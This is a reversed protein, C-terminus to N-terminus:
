KSNEKKLPNTDKGPAPTEPTPNPTSNSPINMEEIKKEVLKKITEESVDTSNEVKKVFGDKMLKEARADDDIQILTGVAYRNRKDNKDEFVNTVIYIKKM